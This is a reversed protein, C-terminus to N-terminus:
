FIPTFSVEPTIEHGEWSLDEGHLNWLCGSSVCMMPM